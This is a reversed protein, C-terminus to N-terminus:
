RCAGASPLTPSRCGLPDWAIAPVPLAPTTHLATIFNPAHSYSGTACHGHVKRAVVTALQHCAASLTLTAAIEVPIAARWERTQKHMIFGGDPADPVAIAASSVGQPALM